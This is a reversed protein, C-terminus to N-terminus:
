EAAPDREFFALILPLFELFIKLVNGWDIKGRAAGADIESKVLATFRAVDASTFSKNM